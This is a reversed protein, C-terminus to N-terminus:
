GEKAFPVNKVLFGINKAIIVPSIPGAGEAIQKYISGLM